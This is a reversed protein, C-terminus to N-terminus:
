DVFKTRTIGWRTLFRKVYGTSFDLVPVLVNQGEVMATKYLNAHQNPPYVEFWIETGHCKFWPSSIWMGLGRHESFRQYLAREMEPHKGEAKKTQRTKGPQM